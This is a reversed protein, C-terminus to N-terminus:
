PRSLQMERKPPFDDANLDDKFKGAFGATRIRMGRGHAWEHLLAGHVLVTDGDELLRKGGSSRLGWENITEMAGDPLLGVQRAETDFAGQAAVRRKTAACSAGGASLTRCGFGDMRVKVRKRCGSVRLTRPTRGRFHDALLNSVRETEARIRALREGRM